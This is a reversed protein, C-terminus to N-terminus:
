RNALQLDEQNCTKRAVVLSTYVIEELQRCERLQMAETFRNWLLCMGACKSCKIVYMMNRNLISCEPWTSNMGFQAKMECERCTIESGVWAASNINQKHASGDHSPAQGRSFQLSMVTLQSAWSRTAMCPVPLSLRHCKLLSVKNLM